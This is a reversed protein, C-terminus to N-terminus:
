FIPKTGPTCLLSVLGCPWSQSEGEWHRCVACFVAGCLERHVRYARRAVQTVAPNHIWCIVTHALSRAHNTNVLSRSSPKLGKVNHTVVLVSLSERLSQLTHTHLSCRGPSIRM